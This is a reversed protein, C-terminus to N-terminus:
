QRRGRFLPISGIHDEIRRIATEDYGFEHASAHWAQLVTEVAAEVRDAMSAESEGIKRAMRRFADMNIDQWQKSKALNLALQDDKM